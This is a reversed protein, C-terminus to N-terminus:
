IQFRPSVGRAMDKLTSGPLSSLLGVRFAPPPTGLAPTRAVHFLFFPIDESARPLWQERCGTDDTRSPWNCGRRGGHRGLM